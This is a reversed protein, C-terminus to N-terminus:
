RVNKKFVIRRFYGQLTGFYKVAIFILVTFFSEKKPQNISKKYKKKITLAVIAVPSIFYMLLVSIIRLIPVNLLFYRQSSGIWRSQNYIEKLSHPNRHYCRANKVMKSRVGYKIFFTQDDAYGLKPDFGGMKLFESKLIARFAKGEREVTPNARYKGYCRAWINDLNNAFQFQEETGIAKGKIIPKSLLNLYNKHLIMDADIFFLIKGKASKVGLNRSFGPGKHKGKIIRVGKFKKVIEVTRDKSGDDVIIIEFNNYSQKKLSDLCKGIDKEENYVPIIVSFKPNNLKIKKM